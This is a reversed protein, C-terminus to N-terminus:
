RHNCVGLKVMVATSLFFGVVAHSVQSPHFLSSYPPYVVCVCVCLVHAYCNALDFERSPILSKEMLQALKREYVSRTSSIIPGPNEGHQILMARLTADPMDKVPSM